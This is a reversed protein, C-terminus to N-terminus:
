DNKKKKFLRSQNYVLRKDSNVDIKFGVFFLFIVQILLFIILYTIDLCANQDKAIGKLESALLSPNKLLYSFTKAHLNRYSFTFDYANTSSATLLSEEVEEATSGLIDTFGFYDWLTESNIKKLDDSSLSSLKEESMSELVISAPANKMQDMFDQADSYDETYSEYGGFYYVDADTKKMYRYVSLEYDHSIYCCSTIWLSLLFGILIFASASGKFKMSGLITFYKIAAAPLVALVVTCLIISIKPLSSDAILVFLVGSVAFFLLSLVGILILPISDSSKKKM